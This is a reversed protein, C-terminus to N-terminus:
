TTQVKLLRENFDTYLRIWDTASPSPSQYIAVSYFYGYICKYKTANGM